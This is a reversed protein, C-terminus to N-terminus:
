AVTTFSGALTAPATLVVWGVKLFTTLSRISRTVLCQKTGVAILSTVILLRAALSDRRRSTEAFWLLTGAANSRLVPELNHRASTGHDHTVVAHPVIVVHWGRVNAKWCLHMDEVYMWFREDFGGLEQFHERRILLAAGSVWDVPAVTDPVRVSHAGLVRHLLFRGLTLFRPGASCVRGDSARLVPGAISTNASRGIGDLLQEVCRPEMKADPNLFFLYEGHAFGAAMNCARGFGENRANRIVSVAPYHCEVYEPTGDGSNNDIVIVEAAPAQVLVSDLCRAITDCANWTVIVFTLNSNM